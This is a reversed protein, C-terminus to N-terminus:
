RVSGAVHTTPKAVPEFAYAEAQIRAADGNKLAAQTEAVVQARTKPAAIKELYSSGAFKISGDARAQVLEAQVQARTKTSHINMWADSGAEQALASGAAFVLALAALTATKNM